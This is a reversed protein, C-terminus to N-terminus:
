AKARRSVPVPAESVLVAVPFSAFVQALRLGGDSQVVEGTFVNEFRGAPVVLRQEGWADGLPWPREGRTLRFSLRPVCVLVSRAEKTRVFAVCHDGAPVAAYEGFLFVDSQEHRTRLAVSTVFLKLAGDAWSPLLREVSRKRDADKELADLLARREAYDVERRNDPDVLSQNWLECGQYTDAIGPSCLRLVTKALANTAGYTGVRESFARLSARFAEDELADHVFRMVSEDYAANPSIWSTELKAEHTAKQMFAQMREIFEARGAEGDWGFPWAGVLSQYFM